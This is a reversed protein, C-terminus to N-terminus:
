FGVVTVAYPTAAGAHPTIPSGTINTLRIKVQDAASVWAQPVLGADVGAAPLGLIVREGTVAGTVALTQEASGGAAIAGWTLNTSATNTKRLADIQETVRLPTSVKTNNTGAQAEAQSCFARLADLTDVTRGPSMIVTLSAGGQAEGQSAFARYSDVAQKTRLPTMLRDNAVGAEAEPMNAFAAPSINGVTVGNVSGTIREKLDDNLGDWSVIGNQLNGDSRRVDTISDVIEGISAEVGALETDLSPAPLPTAPNLGQFVTFSYGVTYKVPDAM